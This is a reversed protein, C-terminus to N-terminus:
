RQLLNAVGNTFRFPIRTQITRNNCGDQYVAKLFGAGLENYVDLSAGILAYVEEEYLLTKM